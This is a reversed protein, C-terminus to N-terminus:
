RRHLHACSNNQPPITRVFVLHFVGLVVHSVQVPELADKRLLQLGCPQGSDELQLAFQEWDDGAHLNAPERHIRCPHALNPVSRAFPRVSNSSSQADSEAIWLEVLARAFLEQRSELLCADLELVGFLISKGGEIVGPGPLKEVPPAFGFEGRVDLRKEIGLMSPPNMGDEVRKARHCGSVHNRNCNIRSENWCLTPLIFRVKGTIPIILIQVVQRGHELQPNAPIPRGISKFPQRGCAVLM